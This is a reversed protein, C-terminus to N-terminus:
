LQNSPRRRSTAAARPTYKFFVGERGWMGGGAGPVRAM